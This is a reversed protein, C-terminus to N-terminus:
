AKANAKTQLTVVDGNNLQYTGQVVTAGIYADVNDGFNLQARLNVDALLDRVRTGSNVNWSRSNDLGFSVTVKIIM